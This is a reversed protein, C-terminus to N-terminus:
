NSSYGTLVATIRAPGQERKAVFHVPEYSADSEFIRFPAEVADLMQEIANVQVGRAQLAVGANKVNDAPIAKFLTVM